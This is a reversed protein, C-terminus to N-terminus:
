WHRKQARRVSDALPLVDEGILIFDLYEHAWAAKLADKPMKGKIKDEPWRPDVIIGNIGRLSWLHMDWISDGLTLMGHNLEALTEEKRRGVVMVDKPKIGLAREEEDYDLRIARIHHDSLIFGHRAFTEAIIDHIGGSVIRADDIMGFLEVIGPRLHLHQALARIDTRTMGIVSREVNVTGWMSQEAAMTAALLPTDIIVREFSFWKRWSHGGHLNGLNHPAIVRRLHHLQRALFPDQKAREAMLDDLVAWENDACATEDFDCLFHETLYLRWLFNTISGDHTLIIPGQLPYEKVARLIRSQLRSADDCRYVLRKRSSTSM